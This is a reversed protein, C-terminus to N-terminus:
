PKPSSPITGCGLASRARTTGWRNQTREPDPSQNHRLCPTFNPTFITDVTCSPVGLPAMFLTCPGTFSERFRIWHVPHPRVHLNAGEQGNGRVAFLRFGDFIRARFNKEGERQIICHAERAAPCLSQELVRGNVCSYCGHFSAIADM